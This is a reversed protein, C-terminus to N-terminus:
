AYGGIFVKVTQPKLCLGWYAGERNSTKSMVGLDGILVKVTQTKQCRLVLLSCKEWVVQPVPSWPKSAVHRGGRCWVEVWRSSYRWLSPYPSVCAQIRIWYRTWSGAVAPTSWSRPGAPTAPGNRRSCRREPPPATAGRAVAGVLRRWALLDARCCSCGPRSCPAPRCPGCRRPRPTTPTPTPHTPPRQCQPSTPHATPLQPLMPRVHFPSSLHTLM